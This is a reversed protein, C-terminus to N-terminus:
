HILMKKYCTANCIHGNCINTLKHIENQFLKTFTKEKPDLLRTICPHINDFNDDISNTDIM